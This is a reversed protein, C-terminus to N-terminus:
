SSMCGLMGLNSSIHYEAKVTHFHISEIQTELLRSSIYGQKHTSNTSRYSGYASVSVSLCSNLAQPFPGKLTAM